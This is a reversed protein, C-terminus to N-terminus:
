RVRSVFGFVPALLAESVESDDAYVDGNKKVQVSGDPNAFIRFLVHETKVGGMDDEIFSYKCAITVGQLVAELTAAPYDPRRVVFGRAIPGLTIEIGTGTAYSVVDDKVRLTVAEFVDPARDAALQNSRLELNKSKSQDAHLQVYKSVWDKAM